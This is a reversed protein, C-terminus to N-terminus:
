PKWQATRVPEIHPKAPKRRYRFMTFGDEHLLSVLDLKQATEILGGEVIRGAGAGALLPSITLCLQDVLDEALLGGFLHPGGECNIRLLGREALMTLAVTLDVRDEGAILIEAGQTTLADRKSQPAQSTTIIFPQADGPAPSDLIIEASGSVIALPPTPSLGLRARRNKGAENMTVGRYGEARATGAGVLIVDALERGLRFIRKDAPHSLGRSTGNLTAAGDASSVFNVQVWPQTLNSPYDYIRELEFDTLSKV